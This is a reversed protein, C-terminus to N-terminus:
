FSFGNRTDIVAFGMTAHIPNTHRIEGLGKNLFCLAERPDDFCHDDPHLLRHGHILERLIVTVM